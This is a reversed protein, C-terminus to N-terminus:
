PYPSWRSRVTSVCEKGFRREESRIAEDHPLDFQRITSLRDSRMAIQPFAAIQHALERAVELSKRAPALRDVLGMTVAEAAGVHRATLMMDLSRFLTPYPFLTDTRTSRPPRRIMLFFFLFFCLLLDFM